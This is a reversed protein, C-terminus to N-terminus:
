GEESAREGYEALRDPGGGDGAPKEAYLEAHIAGSAIVTRTSIAWCNATRESLGSGRRRASAM